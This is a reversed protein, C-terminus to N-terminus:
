DIASQPTRRLKGTITRPINDVFTIKRPIKYPSIRDSLFHRISAATATEDSIGDALVIVASVVNTGALQIGTVVCERILPSQLIVNEVEAPYFKYGGTNILDDGRGRYWLYGDEDYRFVDGTINWRNRVYKEQRDDNLYRCGTPGQVALWGYTGSPVTDGDDDLIAISYAPLPKGVSGPKVEGPASTAFTSTCETTGLADMIELGTKDHFAQWTSQPLAESSSVAVRVSNLQDQSHMSAIARFATPSSICITAQHQEISALMQHTTVENALVTSAGHRLPIVLRSCLGYTFSLHPTGAFIDTRQTRFVRNSWADAIYLLDRHFHATVKPTGTTGSTSVLLAVDDAATAVADRTGQKTAALTLLDSDSSSGYSTTAIDPLAESREAHLDSAIILLNAQTATQQKTLEPGTLQPSVPVAVAGARLVALWIMAFWPDNPGFIMVRNGPIVGLNDTLTEALQSATRQVDAYSWSHDEAVLCPQDAGHRSISHELLVEGLNLVAPYALAPDHCTLDPWMHKPPLSDRCFTDLHASPVHSM